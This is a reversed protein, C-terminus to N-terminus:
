WQENQPGDSNSARVLDIASRLFCASERSVGLREKLPAPVTGLPIDDGLKYLDAKIDITANPVLGDLRLPQSLYHKTLGHFRLYELVSPEEPELGLEMNSVYDLVVGNNM